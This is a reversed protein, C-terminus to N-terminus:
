KNISVHKNEKDEVVFELDIKKPIENISIDMTKTKRDGTVIVEFQDELCFSRLIDITRIKLNRMTAEDLKQGLFEEQVERLRENLEERQKYNVQTM